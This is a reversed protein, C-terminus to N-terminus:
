SPPAYRFRKRKERVLQEGEGSIYKVLFFLSLNKRWGRGSESMRRDWENRSSGVTMAM